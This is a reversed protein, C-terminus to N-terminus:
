IYMSRTNISRVSLRRECVFGKSVEKPIGMVGVTAINTTAAEGRNGNQFIDEM